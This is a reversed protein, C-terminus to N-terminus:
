SLEPDYRAQSKWIEKSFHAKYEREELPDGALSDIYEQGKLFVEDYRPPPDPPVLRSHKKKENLRSRIIARLDMLQKQREDKQKKTKRVHKDSFSSVIEDGEIREETKSALDLVEGPAARLMPKTLYVHNLLSATDSGFTLIAHKIVMSVILPLQGALLTVLEDEEKLSWRVFDDEYKPHQVSKKVAGAELLVPEIAKFLEQSWPGFKHFRWTIGTYSEGEHQEGWALDALYVYKILHIVGLERDRYDDSESAVMLAYKLLTNVRGMDM